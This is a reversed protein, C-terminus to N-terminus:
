RFFSKCMFAFNFDAGSPISEKVEWEEAESQTAGSTSGMHKYLLDM